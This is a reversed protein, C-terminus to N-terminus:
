LSVQTECPLKTVAIFLTIRVCMGYTICDLSAHIEREAEGTPHGTKDIPKSLLSKM